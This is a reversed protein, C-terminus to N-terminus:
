VFHDVLLAAFLLTLYIISWRFTRRALADSYNRWLAFSYGLFVADLLLVTALYWVGSMGLTFPLASAASLMVVYLQSHLCTLKVGHTVPLM